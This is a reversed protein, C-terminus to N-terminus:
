RNENLRCCTVLVGRNPQGAKVIGARCAGQEWSGSTLRKEINREGRVAVAGAVVPGTCVDYAYASLQLHQKRM